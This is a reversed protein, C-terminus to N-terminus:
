DEQVEIPIEDPELPIWDDVVWSLCTMLDEKLREGLGRFVRMAAREAHGLNTVHFLLYDVQERAARLENRTIVFPGAGSSGKVEVPEWRGDAFHFELDWGRNALHVDRVTAAKAAAYGYREVIRMAAEEVSANPTPGADDGDAPPAEVGEYVDTRSTDRSQVRTRPVPAVPTRVAGFRVKSSDWYGDVSERVRTAALDDELRDNVGHVDRPRQADRFHSDVPAAEAVGESQQDPLDAPRATDATQDQGGVEEGGYVTGEDEAVRRRRLSEEAEAIDQVTLGQQDILHHRSSLYLAVTHELEPVDLYSAVVRGLAVNDTASNAARYLKASLLRNAVDRHVDLHFDRKVTVARGGAPDRWEVSLRLTAHERLLALRRATPVRPAGARLLLVLLEARQRDNLLPPIRLEGSFHVKSTVLHSAVPLGYTRRLGLWQGPPLLPLDPFRPLGPLDAIAPRQAWVHGLSTQAPLPPSEGPESGRHTARDLRHTLWEATELVEPPAAGFDPHAGHLLFLAEEVSNRPPAESDVLELRKADDRSLIIRPVLLRDASRPVRTWVERPRAARVNAPHHTVPVWAMQELRWRQYGIARNGKGSSRHASHDCRIRAEPGYPEKLLLLGRIFPLGFEPDEQVRALLEELRDVVWGDETRSTHLHEDPCHRAAIVDPHKRWQGYKILARQISTTRPYEAVGIARLFEFRWRAERKTLPPDEALFECNGFPGYLAELTRNGTWSFGFYVRSAPSWGRAIRGRHSRTPVPIAGLRDRRQFISSDAQWLSWAFSLAEAKETDILGSPRTVLDLLRSLATTPTLVSLDLRGIFARAAVSSPIAVEPRELISPLVPTATGRRIVERPTRWHGSDDQVVPREKIANVAWFPTELTSLWGELLSLAASYRGSALAPEIRSAIEDPKLPECKLRELLSAARGRDDGPCLLDSRVNLMTMLQRERPVSIRTALRRLDAPQRGRSGEAPRVIRAAKLAADLKTAIREGYGDPRDVPALCALLRNGQRLLSEALQATLHVAADAVRDSIIGQPGDAAIRQRGEDLYFDGHILVGRGLQDATPFYAFVSQPAPQRALGSRTWPLAAAVNLQRVNRWLEDRLAEVDRASIAIRSSKVLWSRREGGESVLHQLTGKGVRRGSTRKWSLRGGPFYMEIERLAPAFLLVEPTIAARLDETVRVPTCGKRFPLRIVTTAGATLLREVAKRDDSWKEPLLPLPFYRAPVLEGGDPHGLQLVVRRRAEQKDFSFAVTKSVIQPRDSIEFVATFGIGKYGILHHRISRRAKESSGLRALSVIREATFAVGQNAILLASETTEFWVSGTVRADACADHANQLLEIAYRGTYSQRVRDEASGADGLDRWAARKAAATGKAQHELWEWRDNLARRIDPDDTGWDAMQGASTRSVMTPGLDDTGM